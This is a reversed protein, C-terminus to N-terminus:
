PCCLHLATATAFSFAAAPLSHPHFTFFILMLTGGGCIVCEDKEKNFTPSSTSCSTYFNKCEVDSPTAVTSRPAGKGGKGSSPAAKKPSLKKAKLGKNKAKVKAKAAKVMKAVAGRGLLTHSGKHASAEGLAYGVKSDSGTEAVLGANIITFNMEKKGPLLEDSKVNSSRYCTQKVNLCTEACTEELGGLVWGGVHVYESYCCVALYGDEFARM